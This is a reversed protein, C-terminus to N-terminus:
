LQGRGLDFVDNSGLDLVDAGSNNRSIFTLMRVTLLTQPCQIFFLSGNAGLFNPRGLVLRLLALLHKIRSVWLSSFEPALPLTGFKRYNSPGTIGCM